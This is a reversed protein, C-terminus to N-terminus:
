RGEELTERLQTPVDQLTTQQSRQLAHLYAVIAWRDREAIQHRYSPMTRVGNTITDFVQGDPMLRIREEHFSPPPAFGQYNTVILGKGSGTRDHCPACYINYRDQGRELLAKDRALTLSAVWTGDPNKGQFFVPDTALVGRVVTGPVPLRDARTDEFHLNREQPDYRPQQVMNRIWTLPPKDSVDGRCGLMAGSLLVLFTWRKLM